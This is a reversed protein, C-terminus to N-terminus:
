KIQVRFKLEEGVMPYIMYIKNVYLYQTYTARVISTAYYECMNKRDNYSRNLKSISYIEKGFYLYTTIWFM